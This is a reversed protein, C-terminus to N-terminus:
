LHLINREPRLTSRGSSRQMRQAAHLQRHGSAHGKSLRSSGGDFVPWRVSVSSRWMDSFSVPVVASIPRRPLSRKQSTGNEHKDGADWHAQLTACVHEVVPCTGSVLLSVDDTDAVQSVDSRM